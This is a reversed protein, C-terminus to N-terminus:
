ALKFQVTFSTSEIQVIFKSRPGGERSSSTTSISSFVAFRRRALEGSYKNTVADITVTMCDATTARRRSSISVASAAKPGPWLGPAEAVAMAMVLVVAPPLLAVLPVDVPPSHLM